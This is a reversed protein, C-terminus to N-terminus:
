FENTHLLEQAKIIQDTTPVPVGELPYAKKIEAWKLTGLTHYPLIEVKEVTKLTKIFEYMATLDDEKDTIGPVLVHRIWLKKGHDSLWGAMELINANDVGTLKKHGEPDMEKLDLIFLDTVESMKKLNLLWNKDRCFPQGATDVATHINEKKALSFLATVFETQLLPEGGSVTIGGNNKWYSKYRRIHQYLKQATWQEGKSNWTDPNHCFQCRMKCGGLFVVFRVGPGDVLGFSELKHVNGVINYNIEDM